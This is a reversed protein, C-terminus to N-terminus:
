IYNKAIAGIECFRTAGPQNNTVFMGGIIDHPCHCNISSVM